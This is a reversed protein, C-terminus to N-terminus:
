TNASLYLLSAIKLLISSALPQSKDSFYHGPSCDAAPSLTFVVSSRLLGNSCAFAGVLTKYVFSSYQGPLGKLSSIYFGDHEIIVANQLHEFASASKAKAIQYVSESQIEKLSKKVFRSFIGYHSLIPVIERYKNSNSSVFYVEKVKTQGM